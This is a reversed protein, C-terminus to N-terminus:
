LYAAGPGCLYSEPLPEASYDLFLEEGAHIARATRVELPLGTLVLNPNRSHNIFSYKTRFMRALIRGKGLCNWEMFLYGNVRESLQVARKIQHYFDYEVIQGDLVALVVGAEINRSAFLGKGHTHSPLVDALEINNVIFDCCFADLPTAIRNERMQLESDERFAEGSRMKKSRKEPETEKDSKRM